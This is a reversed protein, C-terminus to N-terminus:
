RAAPNEAQNIEHRLASSLEYIVRRARNLSSLPKLDKTTNWPSFSLNQCVQKASLSRTKLGRMGLLNQNPEQIPIQLTAVRTVLDKEPWSVFANEVPSQEDSGRALIYFGFCANHQRIHATVAESLYDTRFKMIRSIPVEGLSSEGPCAEARALYKVVKDGLKFPLNGWYPTVLPDKKSTRLRQLLGRGAVRVAGVRDLIGRERGEIVEVFEEVDRVIFNAHNTMLFDVTDELQLDGLLKPETVGLVKFAMGISLTNNSDKQPPGDGNSYRLVIDYKKSSAFISHQYDKNGHDEVQFTGALCGHGKAHVGRLAYGAEDQDKQKARAEATGYKSQFHGSFLDILKQYQQRESLYYDRPVYREGAARDLDFNYLFQNPEVSAASRKPPPVVEPQPTETACAGIGLACLLIWKRM